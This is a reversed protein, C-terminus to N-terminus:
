QKEKEMIEPASVGLLDLSERICVSALNCLYGLGNRTSEDCDKLKNEKAIYFKSFTKCLSQLYTTLRHPEMNKAADLVEEPFRAIWFLLRDREETSPLSLFDSENSNMEVERFISRIRAHAYQAYFVPNKDSEEQALDLDFDLPTELARMVFFYRAVDKSKEGLFGLLDSMTQFTGLRKSMKVKEGKSVLNVQQAILVQFAQEGYGMAKVAGSLRPIYGHHDPGWINIMKEYGRDMKDKHYAIDALLYTPRGDERVIVRDKDDGYISSQFVKKGDEERVKDKLHSLAKLVKGSEHLSRESFFEDFRVGFKELDMKQNSLNKEVAWLSFKEALLKFNKSQLLPDILDKKEKYISEAVGIIYDGRYGEGPLINEKLIRDMSLDEGDEQIRLNEGLTQRLRCLCSVGLLFVQNGYDNVYFERHVKHGVVQLLNSISDGMAAARASVINLPGTPNASVFEFIIKEPDSAHAFLYDRSLSFRKTYDLLYNRQIRFNVFGPPSFTVESFLDNKDFCELFLDKKEMPNGLIAKNEMLFSTSYDGFKENRSYELRIKMDSFADSKQDRQLFKEVAITLHKLVQNKLVGEELM